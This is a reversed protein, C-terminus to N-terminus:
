HCVRKLGIMCENWKFPKLCAKCVDYDKLDSLTDFIQEEHLCRCLPVFIIQAINQEEALTILRFIDFKNLKFRRALDCTLIIESTRLVRKAIRLLTKDRM